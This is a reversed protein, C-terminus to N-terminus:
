SKFEFPTFEKEVITLCKKSFLEFNQKNRVTRNQEFKMLMQHLYKNFLTRISKDSRFIIKQLLNALAVTAFASM